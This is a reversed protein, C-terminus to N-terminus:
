VALKGAVLGSRSVVAEGSEEGLGSGALVHGPGHEEVQLGRDDILDPGPGVALEEVGLLHHTALLVGGVVVGPAVVGDALLDHVQDQVPDPLQSVVAGSELTEEDEMGEPSAGARAESRKEHLTERHVVALLGLQLKTDVRSGLHGCGHDLGVVGGQTGVRGQLM